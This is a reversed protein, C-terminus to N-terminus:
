PWIARPKEPTGAGGAVGEMGQPKAEMGALTLLATGATCCGQAGPARYVGRALGTALLPEHLPAVLLAAAGCGCITPASETSREYWIGEM